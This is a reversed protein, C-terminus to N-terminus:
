LGTISYTIRYSQGATLAVANNDWDFRVQTTSLSVPIVTARANWTGTGGNLTASVGWTSSAAVALTLTVTGAAAPAGTPNLQIVGKRDISGTVLSASGTGLGTSGAVTPASGGALREGSAISDPLYAVAAGRDYSHEYITGVGSDTFTGAAADRIRASHLVTASANNLISFSGFTGGDFAVSGTGTNGNNIRTSSGVSQIGIFRNQGGDIDLGVTNAESWQGILNNNVAGSGMFIGVGNGESTGGVLTCDNTGTFNLGAGTVGEFVPNTVVISNCTVGGFSALTLGNVPALVTDPTNISFELDDLHLIICGEFHFADTAAGLVRINRFISHSVYRAFIGYTTSANGKIYVNEIRVRKIANISSNTLDIAPGSGTHVLIAKGSGVLSLGDVLLGLSTPYSYYCAHDAGNPCDGRLTYASGTWTSPVWGTFPSTSIGTGGTALSALDIGTSTSGSICTNTITYPSTIGGGSFKINYCGGPPGYLFWYGTSSATFPNAKVTGISDSYIPALTLTGATYVTVTALPFSAQVPTTSGALNTIVSKGGQEVWGDLKTYGLASTTFAAFACFGILVKQIESKM